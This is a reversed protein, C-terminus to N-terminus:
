CVQELLQLLAPDFGSKVEICASGIRILVTNGPLPEKLEVPLWTTTKMKPDTKMASDQRLWYWLQWPKLGNTACWDNASQGSTRYDTIRTEWLQQKEARKM